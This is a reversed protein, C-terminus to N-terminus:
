MEWPEKDPEGSVNVLMENDTQFEIVELETREYREKKM